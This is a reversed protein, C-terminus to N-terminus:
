WQWFDIVQAHVVASFEYPIRNICPAQHWKGTQVGIPVLPIFCMLDGYQMGIINM